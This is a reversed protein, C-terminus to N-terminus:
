FADPVWPKPKADKIVGPGRSNRYVPADDSRLNRLVVPRPKGVLEALKKEAMAKITPETNPHNILDKLKQIVTRTESEVIERYRM